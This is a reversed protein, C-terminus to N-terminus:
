SPILLTRTQVSSPWWRIESICEPNKGDRSCDVMFINLTEWRFEWGGRLSKERCGMLEGNSM